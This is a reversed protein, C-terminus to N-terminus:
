RRRREALAVDIAQRVLAQVSVGLETRVSDLTREVLSALEPALLERVRVDIPPENQLAAAAALAAEVQMEMPMSEPPLPELAIRVPLAAPDIEIVETLTPLVGHQPSM